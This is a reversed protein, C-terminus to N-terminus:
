STVNCFASISTDPLAAPPLIRTAAPPSGRGESGIPSGVSASSPPVCNRLELRAGDIGGPGRAATVYEHAAAKM